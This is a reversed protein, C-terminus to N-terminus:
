LFFFFFSASASASASLTITTKSRTIHDQLIWRVPPAINLRKCDFDRCVHNRNRGGQIWRSIYVDVTARMGGDHIGYSRLTARPSHLIDSWSSRNEVSLATRDTFISSGSWVVQSQLEILSHFCINTTYQAPQLLRIICNM